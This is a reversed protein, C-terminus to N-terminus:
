QDREMLERIKEFVDPFLKKLNLPRFTETGVFGHLTSGTHFPADGERRIEYGFEVRAPTLQLVSVAVIVEEGYYASGSYRCNLEKVPTMIGMKEMEAYTLGIQKIADTRAVEYWVAYVSHHVVGMQDTEAYRVAIKSESISVNM